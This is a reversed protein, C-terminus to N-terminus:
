VEPKKNIIKNLTDIERVNLHQNVFGKLTGDYKSYVTNFRLAMLSVAAKTPLSAIANQVETSNVFFNLAGIKKADHIEEATKNLLTDSINRAQQYAAVSKYKKLIAQIGTTQDLWVQANSYSSSGLIEAKDEESTGGINGIFDTVGSIGKFLKYAIFLFLIGAVIFVLIKFIAVMNGTSANSAMSKIQM